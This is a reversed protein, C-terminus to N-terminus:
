RSCSYPPLSLWCQGRPATVLLVQCGVSCNQHASLLFIQLPTFSTETTWFTCVIVIACEQQKRNKVPRQETQRSEGTLLQPQWRFGSQCTSCGLSRRNKKYLFLLIYIFDVICCIASSNMVKGAPPQHQVGVGLIKDGHVCVPVFLQRNHAVPWTHHHSSVCHKKELFSCKNKTTIYFNVNIHM